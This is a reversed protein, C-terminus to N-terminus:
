ISWFIELYLSFHSSKFTVYDSVMFLVNRESKATKSSEIVEYPCRVKLSMSPDHAPFIFVGAPSSCITSWKVIVSASVILAEASAGSWPAFSMGHPLTVRNFSVRNTSIGITLPQYRPPNLLSVTRVPTHVWSPPMYSRSSFFPALGTSCFRGCSGFGGYGYRSSSTVNM